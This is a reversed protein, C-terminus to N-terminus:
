CYMYPSFILHEGDFSKIVASNNYISFKPGLGAADIDALNKTGVDILFM